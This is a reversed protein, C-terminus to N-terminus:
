DCAAKCGAPSAGCAAVEVRCQARTRHTFALGEGYTCVLRTLKGQMVSRMSFAGQQSLKALPQACSVYGDFRGDVSEWLAVNKMARYAQYDTCVDTEGRYAKNDDSCYGTFTYQLEEESPCAGVQRMQALDPCAVTQALAPALTSCLCWAVWVSLCRQNM